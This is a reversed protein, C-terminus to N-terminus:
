LAISIYRLCNKSLYKLLPKAKVTEKVVLVNTVDSMAM